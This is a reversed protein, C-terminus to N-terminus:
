HFKATVLTIGALPTLQCTVPQGMCAVSTWQQFMKDQHPVATLTLPVDPAATFTCDAVDCNGILSHVSGPGDDHIKLTALLPAADVAADHMTQEPADRARADVALESCSTIAPASCMHDANCVQATVCDANSACSRTCDRVDPAYCACLVLACGVLLGM